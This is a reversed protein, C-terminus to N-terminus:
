FKFLLFIMLLWVSVQWIIGLKIPLDSKIKNLLWYHSQNHLNYFWELYKSNTLKYVAVLIDPLIGGIIAWIINDDRVFSYNKFMLTLFIALFCADLTGYIALTRFDDANRFKKLNVGFFKKGIEGDGHPIFDFIFHLIFSVIFALLASHIQKGVVMSAAAHVTIFM